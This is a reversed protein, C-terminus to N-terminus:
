DRTVLFRYFLYFLVFCIGVKNHNVFNFNMIVLFCLDFYPSIRILYMVLLMRVLKLNGTHAALFLANVETKFEEYEVLVEHASEEHLVIETKRAKLSVTGMFNVDVFPDAICAYASKLDNNHSADVLRQSVEAKYDVPFIQKGAVVKTGSSVFVTM